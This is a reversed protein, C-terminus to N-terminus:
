KRPEEPHLNRIFIRHYTAQVRTGDKEYYPHKGDDMVIAPCKGFTSGTRGNPKGDQTYGIYESYDKGLNLTDPDSPASITGIIEFQEPSYKDLFTIPVGMLGDYDCPIEKTVDINIADYNDYKPYLEPDYRKYLDLGEHRQRHDLTTFWRVGKVRIYKRGTKEDIGCGSAELPYDDPVYFARDGSHISAGLWVKNDKIFPFVEKYSIANVNGIIVFDKEYELLLSIYDRFKSFPPNTVVIDAEDLLEICEPSRYDGDGELKTLENEGSLFLEKVDLMGVYGDGTKDYVKTILAKYPTGKEATPDVDFLSLQEGEIPSGAYCTAVLKKLGLSNFKKVFYEFFQSEFPDDCNCLVVKDKFHKKYYRMEKEIDTLQTYFEDKKAKAATVLGSNEAM